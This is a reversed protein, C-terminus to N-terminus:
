AEKGVWDASGRRGGGFLRAGSHAPPNNAANQRCRKKVDSPNVSAAETQVIATSEEVTLDPRQVLHLQSPGGFQNFQIARM